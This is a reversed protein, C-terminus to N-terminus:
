KKSIYEKVDEWRYYPGSCAKLEPIPTEEENALFKVLVVGKRNKYFVMQLNTAFPCLKVGNWNRYAEEATLRPYGYGEM